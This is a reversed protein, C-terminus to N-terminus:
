GDTDGIALPVAGILTIALPVGVGDAGGGSDGLRKAQAASITSGPPPASVSVPVDLALVDITESLTISALHEVRSVRLPVGAETVYVDLTESIEQAESQSGGRLLQTPRVNAALETTQQGDVSAQGVVRAGPDTALLDVLEAYAGSGGASLELGSPLAGGHFPFLAAASVKAARVWPRQKKRALQRSYDFLTAGIGISGLQGSDGREYLKGELPSLSAEGVAQLSAAIHRTRKRQGRAPAAITGSLGFTLSYRESAVALQEIKLVVPQVALPLRAVSPAPQAGSAIAVAPSSACPAAAIAIAAALVLPRARRHLSM